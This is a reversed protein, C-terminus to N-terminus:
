LDAELIRIRNERDTLRNLLELRETSLQNIRQIQLPLDVNDGKSAKLEAISRLASKLADEKESERFQSNALEMELTTLKATKTQLEKQRYAVDSKLGHVDVERAELVRELRYVYLYIHM